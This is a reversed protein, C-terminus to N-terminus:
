QTKTLKLYDSVIWAMTNPASPGTRVIQLTSAGAPIPSPIRLVRPASINGRFIERDNLLIVMAHVGFGPIFVGNSSSGGRVWSLDLTLLGPTTTVLHIRNTRDAVTNAWEWHIWPEDASVRLTAPLRNFGAPYTGAFYYDDDLAGPSGPAPDNRGNEASFEAQPQSMPGNTGIRWLTRETLSVIYQWVLNAAPGNREHSALPPMHYESPAGEATFDSIRRYLVSMGPHGPHVIVAGTFGLDDLVAGNIISSESVPTSFRADWEGRGPAGPQHCYACNADTYSKFRHELTATEDLPKSLRPLGAATSFGPGFVGLVSLGLLQNVTGGSEVQVPLNLQRTSFGLAYGAIPNHCTVCEVRAPYHWPQQTSIGSDLVTFATDLGADAVLDANSQDARWRYTLGYVANATKVLFRTEIRRSVASGRVLPLDFHKVWVTGAPYSWRDDADRSVKGGPPLYFWRTKTAYDSWFPSAVEYPLIGDAPTMTELDAFAGTAALTPPIGGPPPAPVLKSIIGSKVEVVLIDGTLPNMGFANVGSSATAIREVQVQPDLTVAWVHRNAWDACLYKGVLLPYRSGRYVFGGIACNGTFRPDTGPPAIATHQYTWFPAVFNVAPRNSAPPAQPFVTTENGELWNWGYNGGRVIRNFEEWRVNGVDGAYLDGNVDFSLRHPNRFGVAWFETRVANAVIAQGNFSMAGVWPNDPPIRYGGRVSPHPNPALSGPRGDVDLRMIGSFFDRDIRQANGLVGNGGGEDGLPLYLYGDPGFQLDGASHDPHQDVQEILIVKSAPLVRNRNAPDVTWRCLRNVMKGAVRNTENAWTFVRDGAPHFAVGFLGGEGASWCDARNDLFVTKTPASLNTIVFVQGGQDVIFLRGANTALGVLRHPPAFSLSPFANQLVYGSEPPTSPFPSNAWQAMATFATLLFLVIIKM